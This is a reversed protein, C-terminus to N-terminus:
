KKAEAKAREVLRRTAENLPPVTAPIVFKVDTPKNKYEDKAEEKSLYERDVAYLEVMSRIIIPKDSKLAKRLYKGRGDAQMVFSAELVDKPLYVGKDNVRYAQTVYLQNFEMTVGLLKLPWPSMTHEKTDALGDLIITFTQDNQKLILEKGSKGEKEHIKIGNEQEKFSEPVKIERDLPEFITVMSPFMREPQTCVSDKGFLQYHEYQHSDLIRLSSSGSFKADKTAPLFRDAMHETFFTVTDTENSMSFYERVYFTQKLINRKVPVIVVEELEYSMPTMEWTKDAAREIVLPEYGMCRLTIPYASEPVESFEGDSWTFGVMNGAADFISAAAVPAHNTADVVRQQADAQTCVLLMSIMLFLIRKM